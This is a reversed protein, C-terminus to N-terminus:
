AWTYSSFRSYKKLLFVFAIALLIILVVPGSYFPLHMDNVFFLDFSFALEFLGIAVLRNIGLVIILGAFVSFTVKTFTIKRHQFIWEFPLIALALLCMPHICYSLGGVYFILILHRTRSSDTLDKAKIILWVILLLFFCAIGYTEAEVASFWFTDSFALCLSGCLAAVILFSNKNKHPQTMARAGLYYIINYVLLVSLASFFASMVNISWAVKSADGFSFITFIKGVLLSLPTGPTHPVQLKYASAIFEACDWLSATPELTILYTIFSILFVICGFAYKWRNIKLSEMSFDNAVRQIGIIGGLPLFFGILLLPPAIGLTLIGFGNAQNDLAMCLYGIVILLMSILFLKYDKKTFM